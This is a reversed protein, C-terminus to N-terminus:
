PALFNGCHTAIIYIAAEKCQYPTPSTRCGGALQQQAASCLKSNCIAINVPNLSQCDFNPICNDHDRCAKDLGDVVPDNPGCENQFGCCNGYGGPNVGPGRTPLHTNNCAPVNTCDGYCTILVQKYALCVHETKGFVIVTQYLICDIGFVPLCYLGTPDVNTIPNNRGYWYFNYDTPSIPVPDRSTWRGKSTDLHRQRVYSRGSPDTRYGLHGGFRYPNVTTGAM